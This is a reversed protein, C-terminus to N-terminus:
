VTVGFAVRAARQGDIWEQNPTQPTPAQLEGGFFISYKILSAEVMAMCTEKSQDWTNSAIHVWRDYERKLQNSYQAPTYDLWTYGRSYHVMELTEYMAVVKAFDMNM